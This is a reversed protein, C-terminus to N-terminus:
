GHNTAGDVIFKELADVKILMQQGNVNIFKFYDGHKYGLKDTNLENDLLIRSPTLDWDYDFHKV